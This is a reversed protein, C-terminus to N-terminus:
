EFNLQHVDIKLKGDKDMFLSSITGLAAKDRYEMVIPSNVTSDVKHVAAPKGWAMQVQEQTMGTLVQEKKIAEWVESSWKVNNAPNQTYFISEFDKLNSGLITIIRGDQKQLFLSAVTDTIYMDHIVVEELNSFPFDAGYYFFEAWEAEAHKNVWVTKGVMSSSIPIWVDGKSTKAQYWGNEEQQVTLSQVDLIGAAQKDNPSLFYSTGKPFYQNEFFDPFKTYKKRGLLSSYDYVSDSNYNYIKGDPMIAKAWGSIEDDYFVAQIKTGDIETLTGKGNAMGDVFEGSYSTVDSSTAIGYGNPLHDMFEGKYKYGDVLTMTGYGNLSGYMFEGSHVEGDAFTYTGQGDWYDQWAEGEYRDGNADKYSVYGNLLDQVFRGEMQTGNSLTFKGQGYAVGDIFSGQLKDGNPYTITDQKALRSIFSDLIASYRERYSVPTFDSVYKSVALKFANYGKSGKSIDAKTQLLQEVNKPEAFKVALELMSDGAPTLTNPNAGAELLLKFIDPRMIAWELLSRKSQDTYNPNTGQDLMEKVKVPQNTIIANKLKEGPATISEQKFIMKKGDFTVSTTLSEASVFQTNFLMLMPMLMLVAVIQKLKM